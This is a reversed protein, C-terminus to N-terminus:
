TLNAIRTDLNLDAIMAYPVLWHRRRPSWTAGRRRLLRQLDHEDPAVSVAVIRADDVGGEKVSQVCPNDSPLPNSLADPLAVEVTRIKRGSVPDVRQRLCVLNERWPQPLEPLSGGPGHRLTRLINRRRSLSGKRM